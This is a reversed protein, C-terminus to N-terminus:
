RNAKKRNTNTRDGGDRKSWRELADMFNLEPVIQNSYAGTTANAGVRIAARYVVVKPLKWVFWMLLRERKKGLEYLFVYRYWNRM